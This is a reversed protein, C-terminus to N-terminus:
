KDDAQQQNQENGALLDQTMNMKPEDQVTNGIEASHGNASSKTEKEKKKKKSKKIDGVDLVTCPDVM